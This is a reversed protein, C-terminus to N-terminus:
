KSHLLLYVHELQWGERGPYGNAASVQAIVADVNCLLVAAVDNQRRSWIEPLDPPNVLDIPQLPAHKDRLGLMERCLMVHDHGM